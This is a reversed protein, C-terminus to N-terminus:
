LRSAWPPPAQKFCDVSTPLTSGKPLSTFRCGLSTYFALDQMHLYQAYFNLPSGGSFASMLYEVNQQFVDTQPNADPKWGSAFAVQFTVSDKQPFAIEFDGPANNLAETRSLKMENEFSSRSKSKGTCKWTLFTHAIVSVCYFKEVVTRSAAFSLGM